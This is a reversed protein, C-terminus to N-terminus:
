TSILKTHFTNLNVLASFLLQFKYKDMTTYQTESFQTTIIHLKTNTTVYRVFSTVTQARRNYLDNLLLRHQDEPHYSWTSKYTTVLMNSATHKGLLLLCQLAERFHIVPSTTVYATNLGELKKQLLAVRFGHWQDELNV